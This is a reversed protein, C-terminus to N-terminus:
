EVEVIKINNNQTQEFVIDRIRSTDAATLEQSAVVVNVSSDSVYVVADNYGKAKILGETNVETEINSAIASLKTEADAKAEPTSDPNSVIATLLEISKARESEKDMRAKKFYNDNNEVISSSSVSMAEGVPVYEDSTKNEAVKLSSGSYNIYGTVVLMLGLVSIVTIKKNIKM